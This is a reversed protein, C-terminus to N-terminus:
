GEVINSKLHMGELLCQLVISTRTRSSNDLSELSSTGASELNSRFEAYARVNGGRVTVLERLTATLGRSYLIQIEPNSLGSAKDRGVTQGTMADITRDDEAVSLKKEITQQPRAVPIPLILYPIPTLYKDGTVPDPRWLRQFLKLGMEEALNLINNLDFKTHLSPMEIRLPFIDDVKLNGNKDVARECKHRFRKTNDGSSDMKDLFKCIYDIGEQHKKNM